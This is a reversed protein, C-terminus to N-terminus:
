WVFCIGDIEGISDLCLSEVDVAKGWMVVLGVDIEHVVVWTCPNGVEFGYALVNDLRHPSVGCDCVVGVVEYFHVPLSAVDSQSM